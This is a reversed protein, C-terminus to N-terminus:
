GALKDKKDIRRAVFKDLNEFSRSAERLIRIQYM